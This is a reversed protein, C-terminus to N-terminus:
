KFGGVLVRPEHITLWDLECIAIMNSTLTKSIEQKQRTIECERPIFPSPQEQKLLDLVTLLDGEHLMSVELKMISRFMQFAGLGSNFEPKYEEQTSITYNINFLKNSKHIKRLTDVWDIRREEGVFGDSILEKYLPLYKVITSKEQGSRQYKQVAQSLQNKQKTLMQTSEDEKEQFYSVLLTMAILSVALGVLPLQIKKWDGTNMKM